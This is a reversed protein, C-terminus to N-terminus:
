SPALEPQLQGEALKTALDIGKKYIYKSIKRL